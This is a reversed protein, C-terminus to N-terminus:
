FDKTFDSYQNSYPAINHFWCDRPTLNSRYSIIGNSLGDFGNFTCNQFDASNILIGALPKVLATPTQSAYNTALPATSKFICNDVILLNQNMADVQASVPVPIYISVFNNNFTCQQFMGFCYDNLTIGYQTDEVICNAMSLMCGTNNANYTQTIGKWMKNCASLTCNKMTLIKYEPLIIEAGAGMIFTKNAFSFNNVPNDLYLTGRILVTNNSSAAAVAANSMYSISQANTGIVGIGTADCDTLLLVNATDSQLATLGTSLTATNKINVIPTPSIWTLSYTTTSVAQWGSFNLNNIPFVPGMYGSYSGLSLIDDNLSVTTSAGNFSTVTITYTVTEQNIVASGPNASKVITYCDTCISPNDFDRPIPLFNAKASKLDGCYNLYNFTINPPALPSISTCNIEYVLNVSFCAGNILYLGTQDILGLNTLAANVDTALIINNVPMVSQPSGGNCDTIECGTINFIGNNTNLVIDQPFM